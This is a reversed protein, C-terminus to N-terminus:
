KSYKIKLFATHCPEVHNHSKQRKDHPGHHSKETRWATAAMTVPSIKKRCPCKNVIKEHFVSAAQFNIGRLICLAANGAASKFIM